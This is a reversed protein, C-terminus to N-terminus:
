FIIKKIFDLTKQLLLDNKDIDPQFIDPLIYVFPRQNNIKYDILYNFVENSLNLSIIILGISTDKIINKFIKLVDDNENLIIGEIGLLGALIVIEESGIIFIKQNTM